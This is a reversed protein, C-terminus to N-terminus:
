PKLDLTSAKYKAWRKFSVFSMAIFSSSSGTTM